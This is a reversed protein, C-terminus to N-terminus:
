RACTVDKAEAYRVTIKQTTITDGIFRVTVQRQTLAGAFTILTPKDLRAQDGDIEVQVNGDPCRPTIQAPLFGLAIAVRGGAVDPGITRQTPECCDDRRVAIVM